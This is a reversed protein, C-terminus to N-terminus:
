RVNPGGFLILNQMLLRSARFPSSPNRKSRCLHIRYCSHDERRKKM